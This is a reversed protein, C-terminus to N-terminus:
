GGTKKRKPRIHQETQQRQLRIKELLVSAPEDTPDQPALKGEFARKLISQRLREAQRLSNEITKEVADAVSFRREIEEVIKHQEPLPPLPITLSRLDELSINPRATEVKKSNIIKQVQQSLLLHMLYSPVLAHNTRILAVAQNINANVITEPVIACRGISAGVLNILVDRAMIQSRKLKKHFKEPIKVTELLDISGWLVNESRIFPIGEDVYKFGQWNPSEGKTILSSCMGVRTWVWGEPLQPLDNTPAPSVGARKNRTRAVALTAGVNKKIRELLVSAPEMKGINEKRWEGTLKGEFAHKLVAQRYRKLEAKAKKIAEVGAELRTFLEELRAVIRRQEEPPPLPFFTNEVFYAPVRLQGASGTMNRQATKRYEDQLLFFFLLKKEIPDGLRIVHFETSGFGVGNTLNNVIAIKGNEMCPTIKAFIIDGNTFPTYGKKVDRFIKTISLDIRGTKEEVAKMPLFSATLNDQIATMPLKPNIEAIEGLKTWVWGKPLLSNNTTQSM